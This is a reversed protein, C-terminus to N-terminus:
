RPAPLRYLEGAPHRKERLKTEFHQLKQYTLNSFFTISRSNLGNQVNYISTDIRDRQSALTSTLTLLM